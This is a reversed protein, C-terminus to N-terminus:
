KKKSNYLSWHNNIIMVKLLGFNANFINKLFKKSYFCGMVAFYPGEQILYREEERERECM